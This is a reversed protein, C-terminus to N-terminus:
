SAIHGKHELYGRIEDFAVQAAHFTTFSLFGHIVSKHLSTKVPVGAAKLKDAFAKADDRLPDFEAAIIFTPPLDKLNKALAPSAYPDAWKKSDPIYYNKFMEIMEKDLDYGKGFLRYSESDARTFDTAPYILVQSAIRPSGEAASKLSVAAALGGGASDGMVVLQETKVNFRGLNQAIYKTAAYCDDVASPFVHEPALRYDVSFVVAPTRNAIAACVGDHSTISGICWGGGHFYVIPILPGKGKPIYARVPIEGAPGPAKIDEIKEVPEPPYFDRLKDIDRRLESISLLHAPPMSRVHELYKAVEPDLREDRM